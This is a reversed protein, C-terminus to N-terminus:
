INFIYQRYLIYKLINFNFFELADANDGCCFLVNRLYLRGLADTASLFITRSTIESKQM